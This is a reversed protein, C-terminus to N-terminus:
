RNSNIEVTLGLPLSPIDKLFYICSKSSDGSKSGAIEIAEGRERDGGIEKKERKNVEMPFAM